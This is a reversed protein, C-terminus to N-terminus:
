SPSTGREVTNAAARTLLDRLRDDSVEGVLEAARRRAEPAAPKPAARRNASGAGAVEPTILAHEAVVFRMDAVEVSSALVLGDILRERHASLEHAWASSSCAITIVGARTRRLPMANSAVAEGAVGPWAAQLQALEAHPGDSRPRFRGLM